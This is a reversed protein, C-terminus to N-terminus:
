TRKTNFSCKPGFNGDIAADFDHFDENKPLKKRPSIGFKAVKFNLRVPREKLDDSITKDLFTRRVRDGIEFLM